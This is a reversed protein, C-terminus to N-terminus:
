KARRRLTKTLFIYVHSVRILPQQLGGTALVEDSGYLLVGCIVLGPAVVSLLGMAQAMMRTNRNFAACSSFACLVACVASLSVTMNHLLENEDGRPTEVAKDAVMMVKVTLVSLTATSHCLVTNQVLYLCRVFVKVVIAFPSASVM